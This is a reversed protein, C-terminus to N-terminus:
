QFYRLQVQYSIPIGRKSQVEFTHIGRSRAIAIPSQSHIEGDLIVVFGPDMSLDPDTGWGIGWTVDDSVEFTLKDVDAGAVLGCWSQGPVISNPKEDNPEVERIDDETCRDPVGGDADPSGSDSKGGDSSGGGCSLGAGSPLSWANAASVRALLAANADYFATTDDFDQIVYVVGIPSVAFRARLAVNAPVLPQLAAPLEAPRLIEFSSLDAGEYAVRLACARANGLTGSIEATSSDADNRLSACAVLSVLSILGFSLALNRILM